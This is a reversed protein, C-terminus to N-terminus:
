EGVYLHKPEIEGTAMRKALEVARQGVQRAWLSDLMNLAATSYDGAGIFRLTNKFERLKSSLNFSMNILVSQRVKDLKDLDKFVERAYDWATIMDERLWKEAQEQTCTMGKKIAKNHRGYGITWYGLTDQYATLRCGEHRRLDALVQLELNMTNNLDLRSTLKTILKKLSFMTKTFM